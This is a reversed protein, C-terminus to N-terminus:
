KYRLALQNGAFKTLSYNQKLNDVKVRCETTCKKLVRWRGNRPKNQGTRTEQQAYYKVRKAGGRREMLRNSTKDGRTVM